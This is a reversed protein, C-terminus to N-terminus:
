EPNTNLIKGTIVSEHTIDYIMRDLTTWQGVTHAKSCLALGIHNTETGPTPAGRDRCSPCRLPNRM